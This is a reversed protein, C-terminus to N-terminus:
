ICYLAIRIRGVAPAGKGRGWRGGGVGIEGQMNRMPNECIEPDIRAGTPYPLQGMQGGGETAVSISLFHYFLLTYQDLGSIQSVPRVLQRSTITRPQSHKQRQDGPPQQASRRRDTPREALDIVSACASLSDSKQPLAATQDRRTANKDAALRLTASPM